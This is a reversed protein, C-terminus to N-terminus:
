FNNSHRDRQSLFLLAAHSSTGALEGATTLKKKVEQADRLPASQETEIFNRRQEGEAPRRRTHSRAQARCRADPHKERALQRLQKM